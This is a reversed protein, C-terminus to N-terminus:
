LNYPALLCEENRGGEKQKKLCKHAKIGTGHESHRQTAWGLLALFVIPPGALCYLLVAKSYYPGELQGKSLLPNEM